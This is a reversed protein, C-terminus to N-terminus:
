ANRIMELLFALMQENQLLLDVAVQRKDFATFDEIRERSGFALVYLNLQNRFVLWSFFSKVEKSMNLRKKSLFANPERM